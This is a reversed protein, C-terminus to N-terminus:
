ENVITEETVADNRGVVVYVDVKLPLTEGEGPEIGSYIKGERIESNRFEHQLGETKADEEAYIVTNDEVEGTYSASVVRRYGLQELHEKWNGAIGPKKTGNLVLVTQAKEAYSINFSEATDSSEGESDEQSEESKNEDTKQETQHNAGSEAAARKEASAPAKTEKQQETSETESETERVRETMIYETENESAQRIQEEYTKQREKAIIMFFVICGLLLAVVVIYLVVLLPNKEQKYDSKKSM